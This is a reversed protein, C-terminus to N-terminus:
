QLNGSRAKLRGAHASNSNVSWTQDLKERGPIEVIIPADHPSPLLAVPFIKGLGARFGPTLFRRGEWQRPIRGGFIKAMRTRVRM